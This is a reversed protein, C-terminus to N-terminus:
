ISLAQRAETIMDLNVEHELMNIDIKVGLKIFSPMKSWDDPEEDKPIYGGQLLTFQVLDVLDATGEHDYQFNMCESVVNIMDPSFQWEKLLLSGVKGQLQMILSDFSIEDNLHAQEDEMLRLIPLAGINHILGALLAQEKKIGIITRSMMQCIAAVNVSKNWTEKFYKDMLYTTPQFLQKISLNIIIDRVLGPGLRTVAMQLDEVEHRTRYLPCNVVKLLRVSLAPDQSLIDTISETTSTDNEVEDRVRLAVEPLSPLILRDEAIASKLESYFKDTVTSM